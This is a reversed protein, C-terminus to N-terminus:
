GAQHAKHIFGSDAGKGHGSQRQGGAQPFGDFAVELPQEGLVYKLHPKLGHHAEAGGLVMHREPYGVIEGGDPHAFKLLTMSM